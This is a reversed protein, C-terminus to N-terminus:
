GYGTKIKFSESLFNIRRTKLEDYTEKVNEVKIWIISKIQSIKSKDKLIIAPEKNGVKYTVMGMNSSDIKVALRINGYLIENQINL